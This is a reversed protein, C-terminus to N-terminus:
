KGAPARDVYIDTHRRLHPRDLDLASQFLYAVRRAEIELHVDAADAGHDANPVFAAGLLPPVGCHGRAQPASRLV